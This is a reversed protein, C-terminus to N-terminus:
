VRPLTVRFISDREDRWVMATLHTGAFAVVWLASLMPQAMLTMVLGLPGFMTGHMPLMLTGGILGALPVAACLALSTRIAGEWGELGIQHRLMWVALPLSVGGAAITWLRIGWTAPIVDLHDLVLHSTLAGIVAIAAVALVLGREGDSPGPAGPFMSM